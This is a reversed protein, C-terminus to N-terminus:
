VDRIERLEQFVRYLSSEISRIDSGHRFLLEEVTSETISPIPGPNRRASDIRANLIRLVRNVDTQRDASLSLVPRGARCLGRSYDVHTGFVVRRDSRLVQWRQYWTLRQAEDIFLPEGSRPIVCRQGEPIYLYVCHPFRASIALLHTTKGYGKEGVFQVASRPLALHKVADEIEVIALQTREDRTLEGFPNKRLNLHAYPLSSTPTDTM